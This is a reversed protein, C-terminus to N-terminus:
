KGLHSPAQKALSWRTPAPNLCDTIEHMVMDRKAILMGAGCSSGPFREVVPSADTAIVRMESNCEAAGHVNGRAVAGAIEAVHPCERGVTRHVEGCPELSIESSAPVGKVGAVVHWPNSPYQHCPTAVRNIYGDSRREAGIRESAELNPGIFYRDASKAGTKAAM